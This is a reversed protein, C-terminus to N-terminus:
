LSPSSTPATSADLRDPSPGGDTVVIDLGVARLTAALRPFRALLADAGGIECPGDSRAALLTAAFALMADGGADFATGRLARAGIGEVELGGERATASAGFARLLRLTAAVEPDDDRVLDFLQSRSGAPARLALTVLIPLAIGVRSAREGGLMLPRELGHRLVVDSAPQGLADHKPEAHLRAGADGLAELWGRASPRTPTRRVGVQSDPSQLGLALLGAALSPDVPLEGRLSRLRVPGDLETVPGLSRLD